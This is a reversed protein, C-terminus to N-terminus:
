GDVFNATITFGVMDDGDGLDRLLRQDSMPKLACDQLVKSGPVTVNAKLVGHSGMVQYSVTGALSEDAELAKKYCGYIPRKFKLDLVGALKAPPPADPHASSKVTVSPSSCALLLFLPALAM